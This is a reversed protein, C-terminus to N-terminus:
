PLLLQSLLGMQGKGVEQVLVQDLLGQTGLLDGEAVAQEGGQDGEPDEEGLDQVGVVGATGGDCAEPSPPDCLFEGRAGGVGSGVALCAPTQGLADQGSEGAARPSAGLVLCRGVPAPLAAIDLQDIAGGDGHGVGGGVLLCEGLGAGLLRA